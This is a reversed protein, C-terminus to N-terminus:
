ESINQTIRLLESNNWTIGLLESNNRTKGFGKVPNGAQVKSLAFDLLWKHFPLYYLGKISSGIISIKM